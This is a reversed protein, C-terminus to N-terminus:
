KEHSLGKFFLKVEEPTKFNSFKFTHFERKKPIVILAMAKDKLYCINVNNVTHEKFETKLTKANTQCQYFQEREQDQYFPKYKIVQHTVKINKETKSKPAYITVKKNFLKEPTFRFWDSPVNVRISAFTNVCFLFLLIFKSM